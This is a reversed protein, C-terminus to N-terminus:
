VGTSPAILVGRNDGVNNIVTVMLTIVYRDKRRMDLVDWFCSLITPYVSKM